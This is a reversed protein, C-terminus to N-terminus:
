VIFLRQYLEAKVLVRNQVLLVFWARKSSVKQGRGVSFYSPLEVFMWAFFFFLVIFRLAHYGRAPPWPQGNCRVIHGLILLTGGRMMFFNFTTSFSTYDTYHGCPAGPLTGFHVKVKSGMVFIFITRRENGIVWLHLKFTILNVSDDTEHGCPKCLCLSFSYRSM